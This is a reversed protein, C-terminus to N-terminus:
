PHTITQKFPRSLGYSYIRVTVFVQTQKIHELVNKYTTIPKHMTKSLHKYTNINAKYSFMFVSCCLIQKREFKAFRKHHLTKSNGGEM